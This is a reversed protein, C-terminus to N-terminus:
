MATYLFCGILDANAKLNRDIFYRDENAIKDVALAVELLPDSEVADRHKEILEEVLAVRPDRTKYVRHGYGYLRVKKQKVAEIYEPIKDTTGIERFMGYAVDIAGGHLPGYGAAIAAVLVSLPDTLTSGVHLATSTSCTMEHDMYIIWLKNFCEELEPNTLGMMLLFNGILSRGPEPDTFQNGNRHCYILAITTALYSITRLLAEDATKLDGYFMPKVQHHTASMIKDAASFASM